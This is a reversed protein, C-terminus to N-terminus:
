KGGNRLFYKKISAGLSVGWGSSECTVKLVEPTRATSITEKPSDPTRSVRATIEGNRQSLNAVADILGDESVKLPSDKTGTAKVEFTTPNMENLRNDFARSFLPTNGGIGNSFSIKAEFSYLAYAKLIADIQARSKVMDVEFGEPEVKWLAIELFKLIYNKSIPDNKRVAIVHDNPYLYLEAEKKNSVYDSNWPIREDEQTRLNYFAEPDIVVYSILNIKLWSFEGFSDSNMHKIAIEKDKATKVTPRLKDIAEFADIYHQPCQNKRAKINILLWDKTEGKEKKIKSPM